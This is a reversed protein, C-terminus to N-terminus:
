DGTSTYEHSDSDIHVRCYFDHGKHAGKESLHFTVRCDRCWCFETETKEEFELCAKEGEKHIGAIKECEGLEDFFYDPRWWKCNRCCGM